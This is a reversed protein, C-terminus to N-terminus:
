APIEARLQDIGLYSTERPSGNWHVVSGQTFGTGHVILTFAPSGFVVSSPNLNSIVPDPNTITLDATNSAGGGPAPNVVSILATGAQQLDSGPIAVSLETASIFTTPRAMGNFLVVAGSVFGEGLVVLDVGGSVTSITGP